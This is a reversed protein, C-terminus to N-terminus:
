FRFTVALAPGAFTFDEVPKDNGQDYGLGRYVALLNGWRFRYGVGAMAQWTFDSEGAGADLHYPIFWHESLRVHGRIGAVGDWLDAEESFTATSLEPPLPGNIQLDLDTDMSFYRVGLLVSLSGRDRDVYTRAGGVGVIWARLDLRAETDLVLGPIDPATVAESREAGESLYVL